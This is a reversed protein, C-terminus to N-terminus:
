RWRHLNSSGGVVIKFSTRQLVFCTNSNVANIVPVAIANDVRAKKIFAFAKHASNCCVLATHERRYDDGM